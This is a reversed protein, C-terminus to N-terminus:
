DFFYKEDLPCVTSNKANANKISIIKENDFLEPLKKVDNFVHENGKLNIELFSFYTGEHCIYYKNDSIKVFGRKYNYSSYDEFFGIAIKYPKLNKRIKNELNKDIIIIEKVGFVWKYLDTMNILLLYNQISLFRQFFTENQKVAKIKSINTLLNYSIISGNNTLFIKDEKKDLIFLNYKFSNKKEINRKTIDLLFIGLKKNNKKMMDGEFENMSGILYLKNNKTEHIQWKDFIHENKFKISFSSELSYNNISYYTIKTLGEPIEYSITLINKQFPLYQIIKNSENSELKIKLKINKEKNEKNM